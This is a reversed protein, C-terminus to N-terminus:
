LFLTRNQVNQATIESSLGIEMAVYMQDFAIFTQVPATSPVVLKILLAKNAIATGKYEISRPITIFNTDKFHKGTITYTDLPEPLPDLEELNVFYTTLIVLADNIGVANANTRLRPGIVVKGFPITPVTCQFLTLNTNSSVIQLSTNGNATSDETTTAQTWPDAGVDTSAEKFIIGATSTDSSSDPYYRNGKWDEIRIFRNELKAM